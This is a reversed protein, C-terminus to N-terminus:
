VNAGEREEEETEDGTRMNIREEIWTFVETKHQLLM